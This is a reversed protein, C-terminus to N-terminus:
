LYLGMRKFFERQQQVSEKEETKIKSAREFQLHINQRRKTWVNKFRVVWAVPLLLPNRLWSFVTQMSRYSPFITHILFGTGSRYLAKSNKIMNDEKGFIGGNVIYTELELDKQDYAEDEFWVKSLHSINEEFKKIGLTELENKIYEHDIQTQNSLIYIDLVMRIGIGGRIFHEILHYLTYIYHDELSMQYIYEKEPTARKWSDQFYRYAKSEAPVLSRHMEVTLGNKRYHDHKSAEGEYEFGLSKMVEKLELTQDKKYLFDLDGMTRLETAPYYEKTRIGKLPMCFIRNKEFEDLLDSIEEKQRTDAYVYGVLQQFFKERIDGASFIDFYQLFPLLGQKKAYEIIDLKEETTMARFQEPLTDKKLAYKVLNILTKQVQTM